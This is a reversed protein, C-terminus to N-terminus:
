DNIQEQAISTNDRYEKMRSIQQFSDADDYQEYVETMREIALDREGLAELVIASNYGAAYLKSESWAKDFNDYAIQLRSKKTAEIGADFYPNNSKDTKLKVNTSIYQPSIDEIIEEEGELLASEYLTEMSPLSILDDDYEVDNTVTKSFSDSALISGDNLDIIRFSYKITAQQVIKVKRETSEIYEDESSDTYYDPNREIKYNGIIPYEKYDIYDIQSILLAQAGLKQLNEVAKVGYQINNIYEDTIAPKILKFYSTRYLDDYLTDTFTEAVDYVISRDYGSFVTDEFDDYEVSVVSSAFPPDTSVIMSAIALNQYKSLDYKAPQLYSVTVTTACASLLILSVFLLVFYSISKKLRAM